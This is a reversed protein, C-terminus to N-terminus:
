DYYKPIVKEIFAWEADTINFLNTLRDKTWPTNYHPLYPVAALEGRNLHHNQKLISLCFRAFDTKIYSLCNKAEIKTKFSLFIYKGKAKEPVDVKTVFTFFDSKTMEARGHNGRIGAINIFWTGEEKERHNECNDNKECYDLIKKELNYYETVNGWKTVDFLSKFTHKEVNKNDNSYEVDIKKFTKTM